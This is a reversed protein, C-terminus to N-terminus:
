VNRDFVAKDNDGDDAGNDDDENDEDNYFYGVWGGRQWSHMRGLNTTAQFFLTM